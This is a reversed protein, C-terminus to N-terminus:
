IKRYIGVDCPTQRLIQEIKSSFYFRSELFRDSAGLLILGTQVKGALILIEKVWDDSIRVHDEMTFTSNGTERAIEAMTEQVYRTGRQLIARSRVVSLYRFLLPHVTMIRLLTLKHLCPLFMLLFPMAAKFKQPHGALPFMVNAPCGLLGPNVVRIALTNFRRARLLKQSITGALFGKGRSTARAGCICYTDGGAPISQLLTATVDPSKPLLSVKLEIDHSSCLAAIYAIKIDLQKDSVAGNRIHILSLHEAQINGALRVAYRAVWDSNISGDYAFYINQDM